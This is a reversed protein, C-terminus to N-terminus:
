KRNSDYHDEWTEHDLDFLVGCEPCFANGDGDIELYEFIAGCEDCEYARILRAEPM